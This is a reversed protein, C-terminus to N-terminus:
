SNMMSIKEAVIELSGYYEKVTGTVAVTEGEKLVYQNQNFLAVSISEETEEDKIELITVSKKEEVSEVIGEIRIKRGVQEETIKEISIPEAEITKSLFFLCIIGTIGILLAIRLLKVDNM